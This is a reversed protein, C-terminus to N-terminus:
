KKRAKPAKAAIQGCKPATKGTVLWLAYKFLRKHKTIRLLQDSPITKTAGREYSTLTGVKLGTLKCFEVQTLGEAKRILKVRNIIEM